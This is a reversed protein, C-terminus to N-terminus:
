YLFIECTETPDHNVTKDAFHTDELIVKCGSSLINCILMVNSVLLLYRHTINYYGDFINIGIFRTIKDM